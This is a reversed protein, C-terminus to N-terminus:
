MSFRRVRREEKAAAPRSVVAAAQEGDLLSPPEPSVEPLPALSAPPLVPPSLPVSVNRSHSSFATAAYSSDNWAKVASLPQFTVM